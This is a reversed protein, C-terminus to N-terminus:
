MRKFLSHSRSHYPIKEIEKYSLTKMLNNFEQGIGERLCDHNENFIIPSLEKLLTTAGRIVELEAAEVDLKMWVTNNKLESREENSLNLYWNDLTDIRILDSTANTITNKIYSTPKDKYFIQKFCDLWGSKNYLGYDYVVCKNEWNNLKLSVQLIEKESLYGHSQPSWAYVKQAGVALATLTYSGYSAGVDLVYDGSNINWLQNRTDIEDFTFGHYSPHNELDVSAIKYKNEKFELESIILENSM